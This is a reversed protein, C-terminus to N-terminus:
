IFYVGSQGRIEGVLVQLASNTDNCAKEVWTDSEAALVANKPILSYGLGRANIFEIIARASATFFDNEKLAPAIGLPSVATFEASDLESEEISGCNMEMGQEAAALVCKLTDACYAAGLLQLVYKPLEQTTNM